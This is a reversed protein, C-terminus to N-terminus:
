RVEYEFTQRKNRRSVEFTFNSESQLSQFASLAQDPSTLGM